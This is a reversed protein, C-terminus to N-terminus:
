QIRKLVRTSLESVACWQSGTIAGRCTQPDTKDTQNGFQILDDDGYIVGLSISYLSGSPAPIDLNKLRMNQELLEKGSGCPTEDRLDCPTCDGATTTNQWLAHRARHLGKENYTGPTASDSVQANIAYSYRQDGICFSHVQLTQTSTGFETYGPVVGIDKGSFQVPRSIDDMVRRTAQQTRASIVGKYYLKGIQVIATTAGLLVVAFVASAIMLEIITFGKQNLKKM